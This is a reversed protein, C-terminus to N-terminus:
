RASDADELPVEPLFASVSFPEVQPSRQQVLVGGDVVLRAGTVYRADDSALFVAPGALYDQLPHADSQGVPTSM